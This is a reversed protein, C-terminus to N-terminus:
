SNKLLVFICGGIGFSLKYTEGSNEGTNKIPFMAFRNVEGNARQVFDGMFAAM